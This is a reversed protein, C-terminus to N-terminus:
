QGFFGTLVDGVPRYNGEQQFAITLSTRGLLRQMKRCCNSETAMEEFDIPLAAMAAAVNGIL